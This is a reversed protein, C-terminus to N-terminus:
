GELEALSVGQEVFAALMQRGKPTLVVSHTGREVAMEQGVLAQRFERYRQAGDNAGSDFRQEWTKYAMSGSNLAAVSWDRLVAPPAHLRSIWETNPTPKLSLRIPEGVVGDGNIDRQSAKEVVHLLHRIADDLIYKWVFVLWPLVLFSGSFYGALTDKSFLWGAVAGLIGSLVSTLFFTLMVELPRVTPTTREIEQGPAIPISSDLRM